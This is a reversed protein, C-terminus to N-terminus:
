NDKATQGGVALYEQDVTVADQKPLARADIDSSQDGRRPVDGVGIKHGSVVPKGAGSPRINAVLSRDGGVAAEDGQETSVDAVSAQDLGIEASDRQRRALHNGEVKSAVAQQVNCDVLTGHVREHLVTAHQASVPTLDHHGRVRRTTQQM